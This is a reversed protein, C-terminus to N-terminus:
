ISLLFIAFSTLLAIFIATRIIQKIMRVKHLFTQGGQTISDSLPM